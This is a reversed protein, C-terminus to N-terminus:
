VTVREANRIRLVNRITCIFDAREQTSRTGRYSEAVAQFFDLQRLDVCPYLERSGTPVRYEGLRWM